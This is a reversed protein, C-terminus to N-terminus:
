ILIKSSGFWSLCKCTSKAIKITDPVIQLLDWTNSYLLRIDAINQKNIWDIQHKLLYSYFVCYIVYKMRTSNVNKYYEVEKNLNLIAIILRSFETSANFDSQNFIEDLNKIINQEYVQSNLIDSCIKLIKIQEDAPSVSDINLLLLLENQIDSNM